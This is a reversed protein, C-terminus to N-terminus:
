EHGSSYAEEVITLTTCLKHEFNFQFLEIHDM